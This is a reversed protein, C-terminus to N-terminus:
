PRGASDGGRRCRRPATRAESMVHFVATTLRGKPPALPPISRSGFVSEGRSSSRSVRLKTWCIWSMMPGCWSMGAGSTLVSACTMAHIMSSYERLARSRARRPSRCAPRAGRSAPGRPPSRAAAHDHHELAARLRVPARERCSPRSGPSRCRRTTRRAEQVLLAALDHGDGVHAAAHEVAVPEVDRPQQLVDRVVRMPRRSGSPSAIM